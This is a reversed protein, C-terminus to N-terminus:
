TRNVLAQKALYLLNTCHFSVKYNGQTRRLLGAYLSTEMQDRIASRLDCYPRRDNAIM